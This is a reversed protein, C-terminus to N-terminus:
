RVPGQLLLKAVHHSQKLAPLLEGKLVSDRIWAIRDRIMRRHHFQAGVKADRLLTPSSTLSGLLRQRVAREGLEVAIWNSSLNSLHTRKRLVTQDIFRFDGVRSLRLWFDWDEWLRIDESWGNTLEYAKRRLLVTGCTVIVETVIECAFTTPHDDPVTVVRGQQVMVRRRQHFAYTETDIVNGNLDIEVAVGYAAASEPSSYLVHRLIELAKPEWVDDADLFILETSGACSEQVGRNRAASPGANAQKVLKVRPDKIAFRQVIACTTDVSGDDVVIVEFDQFTQAAVSKLTDLIFASANHTPIIISIM